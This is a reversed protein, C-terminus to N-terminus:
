DNDKREGRSCFDDPKRSSRQPRCYWAPIPEQDKEKIPYFFDCHKCDKCRVVEVAYVTPASLLVTQVFSYDKAAEFRGLAAYKKALADLKADLANADILRKETAM